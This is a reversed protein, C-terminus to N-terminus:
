AQRPNIAAETLVQGSQPLSETGGAGALVSVWAPEGRKKVTSRIVILTAIKMKIAATSVLFPCSPAKMLEALRGTSRSKPSLDIVNIEFPCHHLSIVGINM